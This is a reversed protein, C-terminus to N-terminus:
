RISQPGSLATPRIHTHTHTRVIATSCFSRRSVYNAHHNVKIRDLDPKCTLTM